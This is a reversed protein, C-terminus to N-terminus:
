NDDFISLKDEYVLIVKLNFNDELNPKNREIPTYVLSKFALICGHKQECIEQRFLHFLFILVLKM